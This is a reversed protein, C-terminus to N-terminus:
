GSRCGRSAANSAFGCGIAPIYRCLERIVQEPTVLRLCRNEFPCQDLFCPSCRIDTRRLVASGSASPPFWKNPYDRASFVAVVPTGVAYSLHMSGTDNSLTVACSKLALASQMPTLVGCFNFIRENGSLLDARARDHAGGVLIVRYGASTVYSAVQRFYELPWRNAPRKAGVAFAVNWADDHVGHSRLLSRVVGQDDATIRLPYRVSAADYGHENLMLLLREAERRFDLHKKQLKRLLRTSAVQWGYACPVALLKAVLVNRLELLLTTTNEPLAVFLDYREKRLRRLMQIRSGRTLGSLDYVNDIVSSDIIQKVSVSPNGRSNTLCDIRASPHRDRISAFAPAACITDGLSGGRLVLVKRPAAHPQSRFLIRVAIHLIGNLFRYNLALLHSAVTRNAM